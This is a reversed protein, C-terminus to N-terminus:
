LTAAQPITSYNYYTVRHITALTTQSGPTTFMLVFTTARGEARKVQKTHIFKVNLELAVPVYKM